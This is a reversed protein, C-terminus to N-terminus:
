VMLYLQKMIVWAYVAGGCVAFGIVCEGTVSSLDIEADTVVKGAEVDKGAIVNNNLNGSLNSWLRLRAYTYASHADLTGKFVIKSFGTVDIKNKCIGCGVTTAKEDGYFKMNNSNRDINPAQAIAITEGEIGVGVWGGTVATCENGLNYLHWKNVTYTNGSTTVNVTEAFGSNLSVTWTGANPVVCDWTGSTDPATLTTTGDTAYCTSGAPYTVNITAYFSSSFQNWSGSKYIYANVSNLGTGDSQKCDTLEVWFQGYTGNMKGNFLLATGAKTMGYDSSSTFLINISGNETVWANPDKTFIWQTVPNSSKVWITNEKPNEPQETGGVVSFNLGGSGGGFGYMPVMTSM